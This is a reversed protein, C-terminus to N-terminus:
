SKRQEQDKKRQKERQKELKDLAKREKEAAAHIDKIRRKLVSRDSSNLVGLAKLKTGDMQLLLEGDVDKDRFKPVYQEMNLSKLWDCVQQTSWLRAVCQPEDVREDSSQSLTQYPHHSSRSESPALPSKPSFEDSFASEQSDSKSPSRSHAVM